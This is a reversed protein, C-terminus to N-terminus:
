KTASADLAVDISQIENDLSDLSTMQLDKEISVVEDSTDQKNLASIEDTTREANETNSINANRLFYVGFAVIVLLVIISVVIWIKSKDQETPNISIPDM